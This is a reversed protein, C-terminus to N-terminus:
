KKLQLQRQQELYTRYSDSYGMCCWRQRRKKNSVGRTKQRRRQTGRQKQNDHHSEKQYCRNGKEVRYEDFANAVSTISESDDTALPSETNREQQDKIPLPTRSANQNTMPCNEQYSCFTISCIPGAVLNFLLVPHEHSYSGM